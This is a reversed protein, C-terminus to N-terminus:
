RVQGTTLSLPDGNGAREDNIRADEDEILRGAGEVGLALRDDVGVQRANRMSATEDHYRMPQRRQHFRVGDQHEFAAPYLVDSRVLFQKSAALDVAMEPILLITM